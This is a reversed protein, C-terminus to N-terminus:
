KYTKRSHSLLQELLKANLEHEPKVAAQLFDYKRKDFYERMAQRILESRTRAELKACEDITNVFKEPVSILIRAM